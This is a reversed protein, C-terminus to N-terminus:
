ACRCKGRRHRRSDKHTYKAARKLAEERREAKLVKQYGKGCKGDYRYM